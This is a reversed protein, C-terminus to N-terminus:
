MLCILHKPVVVAGFAKMKELLEDAMLKWTSNEEVWKQVTITEPLSNNGTSIGLSFM